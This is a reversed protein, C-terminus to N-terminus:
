PQVFFGKVAFSQNANVCFKLCLLLSTFIQLQSVKQIIYKLFLNLPYEQNLLYSLTTDIESIQM